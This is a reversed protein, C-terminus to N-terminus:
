PSPGISCVSLQSDTTQLATSPVHLPAVYDVLGTLGTEEMGQRAYGRSLLLQIDGMAKVYALVVVYREWVM